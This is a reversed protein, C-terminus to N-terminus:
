VTCWKLHILSAKLSLISVVVSVTLRPLVELKGRAKTTEAPCGSKM